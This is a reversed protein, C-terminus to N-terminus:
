AAPKKHEIQNAYDFLNLLPRAHDNALEHEIVGMVNQCVHMPGAWVTLPKDGTILTAIVSTDKAAEEEVKAKAEEEAKQADAKDKASMTHPHKAEKELAKSVKKRADDLAKAEGEIELLAIADFNILQRDQTKLWM